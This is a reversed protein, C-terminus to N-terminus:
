PRARRGITKREVAIPAARAVSRAHEVAAADDPFPLNGFHGPRSLFVGDLRAHTIIIFIM